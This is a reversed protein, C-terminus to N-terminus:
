REIPLERKMQGSATKPQDPDPNPDLVKEVDKGDAVEEAINAQEEDYDLDAKITWTKKSLIGAAAQKEYVENEDKANRAVPSRFTVNVEIGDTAGEPLSGQEEAAELCRDIVEEVHEAQVSQEVEINKTAPSEFTLASAYSMGTSAAKIMWLPIQIRCAIVEALLECIIRLEEANNVVPPPKAQMGQPVDEVRGAEVNVHPISTLNFSSAPISASTDGEMSNLQQLEGPAGLAWERFYALSSRVKEGEAAVVPLKQMANIEEFCAWFTPMGRKVNMDVNNKLHVVFPEKIVQEDHTDLDYYNYAEVPDGIKPRLVGWGFPGFNSEMVPPRISFPELYYFRCYGDQNLKIRTFVEGDRHYRRGLERCYHGFQNVKLLTNLYDRILSLRRESTGKLDTVTVVPGM